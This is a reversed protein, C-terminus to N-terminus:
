IYLCSLIIKMADIYSFDASKSESRQKIVARESSVPCSFVSHRQYKEPIDLEVPLEVPEENLSQVREGYIACTSFSFSIDNFEYM